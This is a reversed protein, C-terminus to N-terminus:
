VKAALKLNSSMCNTTNQNSLIKRLNIFVHYETFILSKVIFVANPQSM